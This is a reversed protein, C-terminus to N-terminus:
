VRNVIKNVWAMHQREVFYDIPNLFKGASITVYDNAVYSLHAMELAVSAESGELEVELEGEFLLKDSLKWLFIPNFTATFFNHGPRDDAAPTEEPPQSPGYGKSTSTFTGSGYGALLMKTTGPFSDKAMQRVSKIGKDLEEVASDTEAQQAAQKKQLDQVQSQIAEPSPGAPKSLLQQMQGRLVELEQKLKDHDEKLKLYDEKSVYKETNTQEQARSLTVTAVMCAIVLIIAAKM